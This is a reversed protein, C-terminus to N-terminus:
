ELGRRAARESGPAEAGGPVGGVGDQAAQVCAQWAELAAPDTANLLSTLRAVPWTTHELCASRWAWPLAEDMATQLLVQLARQWVALETWAGTYALRAGLALFCRIAAPQRPNYACRIGLGVRDWRERLAAAPGHAASTSSLHHPM